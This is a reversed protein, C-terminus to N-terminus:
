DAYELSKQALVVAIDRSTAVAYFGNVHCFTVGDLGTLKELEAQPKGRWSVPFPKRPVFGHPEASVALVGWSADNPREAVIYRLDPYRDVFENVQANFSAVLVRKDTAAAYQADFEGLSKLKAAASAAYRDLIDSALAVARIFQTDYDEDSGALPNLMGIISDITFPALGFGADRTITHGNDFADIPAVLTTDILKWLDHDGHCYELGYERWLLGFASYKVGNDRLGAQLQHHDFRKKAPDFVRGVDYVIDGSDIVAPDRSRVVEADPYLAFLLATAFVDDTHFDENHTIIRM